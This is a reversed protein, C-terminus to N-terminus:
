SVVISVLKGEIYIEKKIDKGELHKAVNPVEKASQIVDAQAASTDITITGRLKGNIQVAVEVTDSVCLSADYSPWPQDIILGKGGLKEWIEEALHPSLPSLLKAIILATDTNVGDQKELLNLLEMLASICTNFHLKEIDDTVKKITQHLKVKVEKSESSDRTEESEGLLKWVRQVFRDIGKIGTDSWDGGGEFPGMFMLYMRFVDSGYKDVFEDPSVVNDKSKSM